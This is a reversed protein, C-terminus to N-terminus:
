AAPNLAPASPIAETIAQLWKFCSTKDPQVFKYVRDRCVLNPTLIRSCSVWYVDHSSHAVMDWIEPVDHSSHAGMNWIEPM